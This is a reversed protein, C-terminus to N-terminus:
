QVQTLSRQMLTLVRFETVQLLEVSDGSDGRWYLWRVHSLENVKIGYETSKTLFARAIYM